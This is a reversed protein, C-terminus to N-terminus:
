FRKSYLTRTNRKEEFKGAAAVAAAEKEKVAAERKMKKAEVEMAKTLADIKKMLM